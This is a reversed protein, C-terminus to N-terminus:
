SDDPVGYFDDDQRNLEKTWMDVRKGKEAIVFERRKFIKEGANDIVVGLRTCFTDLIYRAQRQAVDQERKGFAIELSLSNMTECIIELEEMDSESLAYYEQETYKRKM